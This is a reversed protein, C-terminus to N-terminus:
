ECYTHTDVINSTFSAVADTLGDPRPFMAGSPSGPRLRRVAALLPVLAAVDWGYGTFPELDRLGYVSVQGGLADAIWDATAHGIVDTLWRDCHPALTAALTGLQAGSLYPTVGETIVIAPGAARAALAAVVEGPATLEAAIRHVAGHPREGALLAAKRELVAPADVEITVFDEPLKLRYPRCDYGAGLHWLVRAGGAVAEMLLVDIIHARAILYDRRDGVIAALSGRAGVFREAYVDGLLGAPDRADLARCAVTVLATDAVGGIVTNV